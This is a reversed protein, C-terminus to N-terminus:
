SCQSKDYSSEITKVLAFLMDNVPTKIGLSRAHRSIAGNISDIETPRKNLVDQLMSCINSGTAACISEAKQLPDDYALKTGKRKAVKAAEAVSLRLMEKTGDYKILDSNCLRTIAGLANIGANIVLKSWIVSKIDKSMKTKIKAENFIGAIARVDGFIKGDSAGITTEESGCHKIHGEKFMTAAQLSVGGLAREEGVVENIMELNGVGNQITLVKTEKGLLPNIQKIASETDYSKVAIIVLDANAIEQADATVKIKATFNSIGEVKIGNANLRKARQENKDLIWVEKVSKARSLLAAFLCGIAGPGVIVIKM